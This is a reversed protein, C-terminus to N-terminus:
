KVKHLGLNTLLSWVATNATMTLGKRGRKGERGERRERGEVERGERRGSEGERERRGGSEGGRERRRCDEREAIISKHGM